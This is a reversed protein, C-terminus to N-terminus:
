SIQHLIKNFGVVTANDPVNKTVVAGAGIRVNNGIKIPGVIKAGAGIFVNDGIIPAHYNGGHHPNVGITVQHFITANRGIVAFRNIIIGYPHPLYLGPGIPIDTVLESNCLLVTYFKYLARIAGGWYVETRM